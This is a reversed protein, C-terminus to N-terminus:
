KVLVMKKIDTFDKTELKYFYTGSSLKAANFNIEHLGAQLNGNVIEAVLRGTVDFVKLTVNGSVPLAFKITTAPNFPNPFNQSLSFGNPIQNNNIGTTSTMNRSCYGNYGNMLSWVGIGNDGGGLVYGARPEAWVTDPISSTMQIKASWSSGTFSRYFGAPATPNDQAYCVKFQSATNRVAILDCTRARDGTYDLTDRTWDGATSGGNTTKLGFIDWDAANYQRVYTIMGTRINTGGNFAIRLDKSINSETVVMSSGSSSYGNLYAIYINNFGSGYCNYATIVRGSGSGGDDKYYAIDGNLYTSGNTGMSTSWHFGSTGNPQIYNLGPTAAFPTSSYMYKQKVYHNSGALSDMSCIMMVYANSTYNTNDSTIRPNYYNMGAGSGPFNLITWYYGSGDAKQRMFYVKKRNDSNDTLGIVAFVWTNTGDYVVEVDMEDRNFSYGTMSTWMLTFWSAGNNTSYMLKLSDSGTQSDQTLLYFLRGAVNSGTPAVGFAHSYISWPHIAAQNYDGEYGNESIGSHYNANICPQHVEFSGQLTNIQAQIQQAAMVNGSLRATELQNELTVLQASKQNEAPKTATLMPVNVNGNSNSYMIELPPPAPKGQSFLGGPFIATILVLFVSVYMYITKAKM